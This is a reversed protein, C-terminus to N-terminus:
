QRPRRPELDRDRHVDGDAGVDNVHVGVRRARREALAAQAIEPVEHRVDRPEVPPTYRFQPDATTSGSTNRFATASARLRPM